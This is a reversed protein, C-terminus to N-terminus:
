AALLVLDEVPGEFEFESVVDGDFSSVSVDPNDSLGVNVLATVDGM